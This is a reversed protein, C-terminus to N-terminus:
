LTITNCQLYAEFDFLYIQASGNRTSTFVIKKGDSSFSPSGEYGPSNTLKTQSSGDANMVWLEFNYDGNAENEFAIIGGGRGDLTDTPQTFENESSVGTDKNCANLISFLVFSLLMTSFLRKTNM